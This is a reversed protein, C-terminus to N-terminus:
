DNDLIKLWFQHLNVDLKLVKKKLFHGVQVSEEPYM